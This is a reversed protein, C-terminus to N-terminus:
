EGTGPVNICQLLMQMQASAATPNFAFVQHQSEICSEPTACWAQLTMDTSVIIEDQAVPGQIIYGSGIAIDNFDDCFVQGTTGVGPNLTVSNSVLYMASDALTTDVTHSGTSIPNTDVTSGAELHLPGGTVTGDPNIIVTNSGIQISGDNHVSFLTDTGDNVNLAPETSTPDVQIELVPENPDTQTFNLEELENQLSIIAECLVETTSGTKAKDCIEDFTKPDKDPPEAFTMTATAVSGAVLVFAIALITITKTM